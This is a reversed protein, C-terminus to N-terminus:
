KYRILLGYDGVNLKQNFDAENEAFHIRSKVVFIEYLNELEYTSELGEQLIVLEKM